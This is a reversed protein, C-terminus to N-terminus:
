RGGGLNQENRDIDDDGRKKCREMHVFKLLNLYRFSNHVNNFIFLIQLLRVKDSRKPLTRM